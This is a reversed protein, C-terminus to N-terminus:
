KSDRVRATLIRHELAWEKASRGAKIAEEHWKEMMELSKKANKRYKEAIDMKLDAAAEAAKMTELNVSELSWAAKQKCLAAEKNDREITKELWAIWETITGTISSGTTDFTTKNKVM